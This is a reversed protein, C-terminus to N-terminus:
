QEEKILDDLIIKRDYPVKIYINRLYYNQNSDKRLLYLHQTHNIENKDLLGASFYTNFISTIKMLENKPLTVGIFNPHFAKAFTNAEHTTSEPDINIFLVDLDRRSTQQEYQNVIAAIEHLRPTCVDMCGVYGFFILAQKKLAPTHSPMQIPKHIHIRGEQIKDDELFPFMGTGGLFVFLLLLSLGLTIAIKKM